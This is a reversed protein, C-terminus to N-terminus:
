FVGGKLSIFKQIGTRCFFFFCSELLYGMYVFIVLSANIVFPFSVTTATTNRPIASAASATSRGPSSVPKARPHGAPPGSERRRCSGCRGPQFSTQPRCGCDRRWFVFRIPRLPRPTAAARIRGEEETWGRGSEAVSILGFEYNGLIVRLPFV